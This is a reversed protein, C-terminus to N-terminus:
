SSIISCLIFVVVLVGKSETYVRGALFLAFNICFKFLFKGQALAQAALENYRALQTPNLEEGGDIRQRYALLRNTDEQNM